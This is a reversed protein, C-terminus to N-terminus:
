TQRQTSADAINIQNQIVQRLSNALSHTVRDMDTLDTFKCLQIRRGEWFAGEIGENALIAVKQGDIECVGLYESHALDSRRSAATDFEKLKDRLSKPNKFNTKKAAMEAELVAVIKAIVNRLAPAKTREIGAFAEVDTRATAMRFLANEVLSCSQLIRGTHLAVIDRDGNNNGNPSTTVITLLPDTM